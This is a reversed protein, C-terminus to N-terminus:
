NGSSVPLTNRVKERPGLAVVSEVCFRCSGRDHRLKVYVTTVDRITVRVTQIDSVNRLYSLKPHSTAWIALSTRSRQDSETPRRRNYERIFLILDELNEVKRDEPRPPPFVHTTEVHFSPFPAPSDATAIKRLNSSYFVNTSHHLILSM